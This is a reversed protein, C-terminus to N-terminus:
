DSESGIAPNLSNHDAIDYGHTSEARARFYPSAYLDSIGLEHLYPVIARADRFTFGRNLQLRYTADPVRRLARASDLPQANTRTGRRPRVTPKTSQDNRAGVAVM